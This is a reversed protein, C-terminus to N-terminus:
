TDDRQCACATQLYNQRYQLYLVRMRGAAEALECRIDLKSFLEPHNRTMTQRLAGFLVTHCLTSDPQFDAGQLAGAPPPVGAPFM